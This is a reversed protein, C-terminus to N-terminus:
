QSRARRRPQPRARAAPRRNDQAKAASSVAARAEPRLETFVRDFLKREELNWDDDALPAKANTSALIKVCGSAVTCSPLGFTDRYTALDSEANAYHFADVIAIWPEPHPGLVLNYASALDDPGLGSPLAFAKIRNHEDVRLRAKCRFREGNCVAAHLEQPTSDLEDSQQAKDIKTGGSWLKGTHVHWCSVRLLVKALYPQQAPHLSRTCASAILL